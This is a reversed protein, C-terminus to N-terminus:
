ISKNVKQIYWIGQLFCDAFDDKKSVELCRKWHKLDASEELFLSCLEIGRKKNEKYKKKDNKDLNEKDDHKVGKEEPTEKDDNDNYIMTNQLPPIVKLKNSSSIFEIDIDIDKMIFYQALMGQVTKMRTAIPSIQNEIIVNTIGNINSINDLKLKINKGITILETENANKKVDYHIKEFCRENFFNEMASVIDKKMKPEGNVFISYIEAIKLLDEIKKNKYNFIDKNRVIFRSSENAHKECFCEDGKKYVAKKKCLVVEKTKNKKTGQKETKFSCIIPPEREGSEMLNLVNWDLINYTNSGVDFICYAMNKIGIDFSILKM